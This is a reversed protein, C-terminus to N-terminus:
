PFTITESCFDGVEVDGLARRLDASKLIVGINPVGSGMSVEENVFVRADAIVRIRTATGFPTVTGIRYGTVELVEAETALSIRSLGLYRRLKPWSIQALGAMLVMVFEGARVRFLISRVVQGPSQGREAAAQELSQIQGPHVFECHPVGMERLAQAAPTM